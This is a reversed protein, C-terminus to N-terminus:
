RRNNLAFSGSGNCNYAHIVGKKYYTFLIMVIFYKKGISKDFFVDIPIM